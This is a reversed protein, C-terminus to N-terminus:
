STRMVCDASFSLTVSVKTPPVSGAVTVTAGHASGAAPALMAILACLGLSLIAPLTTRAPAM